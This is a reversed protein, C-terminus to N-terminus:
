HELQKAHGIATYSSPVNLSILRFRYMSSYVIFVRCVQSTEDIKIEM